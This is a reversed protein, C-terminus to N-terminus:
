FSFPLSEAIPLLKQKDYKQFNPDFPKFLFGSSYVLKSERDISDMGLLLDANFYDAIFQSIWRHSLKQPLSEKLLEIKSWENFSFYKQFLYFFDEKWFLPEDELYPVAAEPLVILDFHGNERKIEKLLRFIIEWQILPHIFEDEWNEMFGREEIKWGTQVLAVKAKPALAMRQMTLQFSIFGFLYPAFAFFLFAFWLKLNRKNIFLLIMLASSTMVFFSLGYIGVVSAFQLPIDYATLLLGVPNWVYGSLFFLRTWEFFAWLSGLFLAGLVSRLLPIFLAYLGGQLGLLLLLIGYVFYIAIGHYKTSLLWTLQPAQILSFFLFGLFFREKQSSANLAVLFFFAFGICAALPCLVKILGPHAFGMILAFAVIFFGKRVPSNILSFFQYNSMM